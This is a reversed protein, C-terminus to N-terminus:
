SLPLKLYSYQVKGAPDIGKARIKLTGTSSSKLTITVRYVRTSVKYTSVHYVTIGPQYISIRPNASLNEASTVTITIKQRRAPTTDSVAIRFADALVSSAMTTGQVGNTANLHQRYTGVPVYAGADNRGNWAFTHTGAPLEEGSRITRVVENKANRVTWTVTAPSLLTFSFTVSKAYKDNDQPYFISVSSKPGKLAGYVDVTRTVGPSSNGARDRSTLEITYTGDPVIGGADAQGNWALSGAGGGTNVALNAVVTGGQNRVKGLLQGAESTTVSMTVSDKSGDGNPTFTTVADAAPSTVGLTPAQTDVVVTGTTTSPGNRWADTAELSWTYTGDPAPSGGVLGNWGISATSGTGSTSAITTTGNRLRLTWSASESLKLNLALTDRVGDGNPSFSGGGDEITWVRPAVSDRPLLTSGLMWGSLAGDFTTVELIPSGDPGTGSQGSLRVKVGAPLTAAPDNGSDDGSEPGLMAAAPAAYLPADDVAVSAAGPVVFSAPDTDTAAYSAGTVDDTRLDMNGVISRYFGSTPTRPDMMYTYGPNRSSAYSVINGKASPSARWLQEITQRTSFLAGMYYDHYHGDAIVARAGARIFAAGYNDVRQRAVSVTPEAHGPESNGSAYCLHFLLVVANPAFKLTEISPEGYYKTNNDGEGAVSNLGFGNKTTYKADYTYPSPWGNGHGLYVVVSAGAVASKVASWTANPSYVKVVNTTYKAAQSAISNAYTRYNSTASHTAGVIIVVKPDLSAAHAQPAAIPSFFGFGAILAACLILALKRL